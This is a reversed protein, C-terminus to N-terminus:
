VMILCLLFILDLIKSVLFCLKWTTKDYYHPLYKVRLYVSSTCCCAWSLLITFTVIFGMPKNSGWNFLFVEYKWQQYMPTCAINWITCQWLSELIWNSWGRAPCLSIGTGWAYYFEYSCCTLLESVSSLYWEVISAIKESILNKALRNIITVVAVIVTYIIYVCMWDFPLRKRIVLKKALRRVLCLLYTQDHDSTSCHRWPWLFAM